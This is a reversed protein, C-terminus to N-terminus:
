RASATTDPFEFRGYEHQMATTTSSCDLASGLGRRGQSVPNAIWYCLLAFGVRGDEVLGSFGLGLLAAFRVGYVFLLKRATVGGFAWLGLARLGTAFCRWM